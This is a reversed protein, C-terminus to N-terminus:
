QLRKITVKTRGQNNNYFYHYPGPWAIMADNVFLFLEGNTPPRIEEGKNPYHEYSGVSGIRIGVSFWHHNLSRRFPVLALMTLKDKLSPADHWHFPESAPINADAFSRTNELEIKYKGEKEVRVNMSQCVNSTRFERVIEGELFPSPPSTNKCFWGAADQFHLAVRNVAAAGFFISILILAFAFITPWFDLESLWKYLRNTRLRYILGNPVSEIEEVSPNQHWVFAMQDTIQVKLWKGWYLLAVLALVTVLVVIPTQTYADPWAGLAAPIFSGVLRILDSIPRITGFEPESPNYFLPYLFLFASVIVIALNQVRGMWVLDWIREQARSRLKAKEANEYVHDSLGLLRGDSTVIEYKEPIGIPAYIRASTKMRRFVSEHIKPVDIHVTRGPKDVHSLESVKRPSYRYYGRLGKRSDYIRGDEDRQSKAHALADPDADPTQKLKLGCHTAQDLIWCLSVYALSDDPYGGGVNAHSGAFWVQSLREDKIYRNGDNSPQLKPEDGENWLIPHFTKREDDLSLAHCARQVIKPLQRTPLDLPWFWRNIARTMGEVPLGYAAVTDWLGEFQIKVDFRNEQKRYKNRSFFNRLSHFLPEIPIIAHSRELRHARYAAAAKWDLEAQSKFNVLGQTHIIQSLLRITFAGRSFGFAFIKDDSSKYNRCVFKYLSIVNRKLGWGFVGGIIALPIFASTGVGDDYYALYDARARDLSQFTRWVNTRWVKNPTNGTGDSLLIITTVM